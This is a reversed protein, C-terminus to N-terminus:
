EEAVFAVHKGNPSIALRYIKKIGNPSLDAYLHWQKDGTYEFYYIATNRAMYIRTGDASWAYDESVSPIKSIETVNGAEYVAQYIHAENLVWVSDDPKTIYSFKTQGPIKKICRGVNQDLKIQYGSELNAIQLSMPEPLVCMAVWQKDLRGYYALSDVKDLFLKDDNGNLDYVCFRQSLNEEVRVVSIHKKDTTIEPSFESLTNHTVQTTSKKKINYKYIDSQITDYFASYYIYRGDASFSPQNDYGPHNTINVPSPPNGNVPLDMLYIDFGPLQAFIGRSILCLLFLLYRMM